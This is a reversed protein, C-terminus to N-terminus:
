GPSWGLVGHFMITEELEGTSSDGVASRVAADFAVARDGLSGPSGFWTSHLYALLADCTFTHTVCHEWEDIETFGTSRLVSAHSPAGPGAWGTAGIPRALGPHFQEVVRFLEAKWPEDGALVSQSGVIVMAGGPRLWGLVQRCLEARRFHHFANGITVLDYPFAPQHDEARGVLWTIPARGPETSTRGAEVLEPECDLAVVREFLPRLTLALEGTGCALDLLAGEGTPTLREVLRHLLADPYGPRFLGYTAAAGVFSGTLRLTM